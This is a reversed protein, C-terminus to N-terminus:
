YSGSWWATGSWDAVAHSREAENMRYIKHLVQGGRVDVPVRFPMQESLSLAIVGQAVSVLSSTDGDQKQALLSALLSSYPSCSDLFQEVLPGMLGSPFSSPTVVSVGVDFHSLEVRLSEFAKELAAKSAAYVGDCPLGIQASLSSIAIIRGSRRVRMMPAFAQVCRLAGFFNVDMVQQALKFDVTEIPAFRHVGANIILADLHCDSELQDKVQEIDALECVDMQMLSLGDVWKLAEM